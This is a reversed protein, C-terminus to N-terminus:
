PKGFTAVRDVRAEFLVRRENRSPDRLGYPPANNTYKTWIKDVQDAPRHGEDPDDEHIENTITAKISVWHYANAPNVLIITVEPNKRVWETKKRHSAFNLLVRDGEYDFWIPTLAPRGDGGMVAIVATVPEDLLRKYIPDLDELSSAEDRDGIMFQNPQLGDAVDLFRAVTFAM